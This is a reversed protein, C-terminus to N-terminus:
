KKLIVPEPKKDLALLQDRIEAPCATGDASYFGNDDRYILHSGMYHALYPTKRKLVGKEYHHVRTDFGRTGDEEVKIRTREKQAEM